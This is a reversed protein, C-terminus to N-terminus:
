CLTIDYSGWNFGGAFVEDYPVVLYIRLHAKM